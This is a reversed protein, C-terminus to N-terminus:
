RHYGHIPAIFLINKPTTLAAAVIRAAEAAEAAEAAVAIM